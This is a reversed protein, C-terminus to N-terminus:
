KMDIIRDMRHNKQGILGIKDYIKIAKQDEIMLRIQNQIIIFDEQPQTALLGQQYNYFEEHQRALADVFFM